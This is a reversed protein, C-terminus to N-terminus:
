DGESFIIPDWIGKSDCQGRSEKGPHSPAAAPQIGLQLNNQELGLTLLTMPKQFLRAAFMGTLRAFTKRHEQWSHDKDQYADTYAGPFQFLLFHSFVRQLVPNVGLIAFQLPKLRNVCISRSRWHIANRKGSSGTLM